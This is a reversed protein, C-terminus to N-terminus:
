QEKPPSKRTHSLFAHIENSIEHIPFFDSSIRKSKELTLFHDGSHRQPKEHTLVSLEKPLTRLQTLILGTNNM